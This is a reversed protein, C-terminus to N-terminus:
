SLSQLCEEINTLFNLIHYYKTYIASGRKNKGITFTAVEGKLKFQILNYHDSKYPNFPLWPCETDRSERNYVEYVENFNNWLTRILEYFTPGENPLSFTAQVQSVKVDVRLITYRCGCETLKKVIRTHFNEIDRLYHRYFKKIHLIIYGGNTVKLTIDPYRLTLAGRYPDWFKWDSKLEYLDFVCEDKELKEAIRCVGKLIIQNIKYSITRSM